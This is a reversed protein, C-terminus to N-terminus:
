SFSSITRGGGLATTSFSSAASSMTVASAVVRAGLRLGFTSVGVLEFGRRAICAAVNTSASHADRDGLVSIPLSYIERRKNKRHKGESPVGSM